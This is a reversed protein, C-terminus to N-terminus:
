GYLGACRAGLGDAIEAALGGPGSISRTSVVLARAKGYDALLEALAEGAPRGYVVRDQLSQRYVGSLM